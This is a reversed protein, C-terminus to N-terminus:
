SKALRIRLATFKDVPNTGVSLLALFQGRGLDAPDQGPPLFFIEPRMGYSYAREAAGITADKADSEAIFVPERVGAQAMRTLQQETVYKGYTAVANRGAVIASFVGECVLIRGQGIAAAQALFGVHYRRPSSPNKFRKGAISRAMWYECSGAADFSPIIVMDRYTDRGQGIRYWLADEMSVGRRMVYRYVMSGPTLPCYWDPLAARHDTPENSGLQNLRRRLDDFPEPKTPLEPVNGIHDGLLVFLYSVSGSVGTKNDVFVGKEPNVWLHHKTDPQGRNKRYQHVFPSNFRVEKGTLVPAGLLSVLRQVKPDRLLRDQM